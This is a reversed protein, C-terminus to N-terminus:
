LSAEETTLEMWDESIFSDFSPIYPLEETSHLVISNETRDYYIFCEQWDKLKAKYGKQLFPIIDCFSFEGKENDLLWGESVMIDEDYRYIGLISRFSKVIGDVKKFFIENKWEKRTIKSGSKLKDMAEKFNM